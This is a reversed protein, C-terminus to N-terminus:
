NLSWKTVQIMQKMDLTGDEKFHVNIKYKKRMDKDMDENILGPM